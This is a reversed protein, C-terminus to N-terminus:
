TVQVQLGVCPWPEIPSDVGTVPRFGKANDCLYNTCYQPMTSRLSVRAHAMLANITETSDSHTYSYSGYEDDVARGQLVWFGVPVM